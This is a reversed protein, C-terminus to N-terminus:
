ESLSPSPQEMRNKETEAQWNQWWKRADDQSWVATSSCELLAAQLQEATQFRDEPAKELCKLVIQDLEFSVDPRLSKLPKAPESAHAILVEAQNDYVFPPRGALLYYAVAGLSYIDSRGDVQDFSSIQEPSMYAPTGATMTRDEDQHDSEHQTVRVLGFDLLKAFDYIGGRETAFINGPKIDRHYLGSRHAEELAGCIQILFHLARGPPLPGTEQVMDWLNMGPLLEMVYFFLGTNTQGYDYVEITNPHTLQSAARVEREFGALNRENLREPQIVKIACPRKLMVHRAEYVKGMGGSGAERILEYQAFRRARFASLRSGHIVSAAAVAIGAAVFPMPLGQDVNALVAAIQPYAIRSLEDFAYPIVALPLLVFAARQWTNPIFVGYMLILVAWTYLNAEAVRVVRLKDRLNDTVADDTATQADKQAPSVADGTVKAPEIVQEVSSEATMGAKRLNEGLVHTEQLDVAVILLGANFTVVVELVRLLSLRPSRWRGLLGLCVLNVGLCIVHFLPFWPPQVVPGLIRSVISFAIILTMVLAFIWLRYRLLERNENWLDALVLQTNGEIERSNAQLAGQTEQEAQDSVRTQGADIQPLLTRNSHHRLLSRVEEELRQDGASAHKIFVDQEAPSM